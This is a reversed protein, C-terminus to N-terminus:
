STYQKNLWQLQNSDCMSVRPLRYEMNARQLAAARV